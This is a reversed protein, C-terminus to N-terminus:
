CSDWNYFINNFDKKILDDRKIFFNCIGTDGWMIYRGSNIQLLLTDYGVYIEKNNRRDKQKFYPYGLMKNKTVRSDLAEQLKYCDYDNLINFYQKGNEVEEGYVEKYAQNFYKEFYIDCERIYDTNKHLTIRHEGRVPFYKANNISNLIGLKIVSEESVDYDIKEHYIVRFGHKNTQDNYDIGNLDDDDIFFQLIGKQPLPEDVKCQDFNIQTLLFLKKGNANTPYEKDGSWYPLGGIKSDFLNPKEQEINILYNDCNSLRKITDALQKIKDTM